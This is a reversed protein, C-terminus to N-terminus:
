QPKSIATIITLLKERMIHYSFKESNTKATQYMTTFATKNGCVDQFIATLAAENTYRIVGSSVEEPIQLFAPVIIPKAYRIADQMNGSTKTVGYEEITNDSMSTIQHQPSLLITAASLIQQFDQEPIEKEFLRVTKKLVQNNQCAAAIAAGHPIYNGALVLEANIQQDKTEIFKEWAHLAIMYDKRRNDISGPIVVCFRNLNSVPMDITFPMYFVPTMVYCPKRTLSRHVINEKMKGTNVIFVDAMKSLLKKSILRLVQKPHFTFRPRFFNNIEHVNVAMNMNPYRFKLAAFALHKSDNTNLWFLDYRHINIQRNLLRYLALFPQDALYFWEFGAYDHDTLANQIDTKMNEHVYFSISYGSGKLLMALPIACEIHVTEYIAIKM